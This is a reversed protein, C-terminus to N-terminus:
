DSLKHSTTGNHVEIMASAPQGTNLSRQVTNVVVVLGPLQQTSGGQQEDVSGGALEKAANFAVMKNDDQDRLEALRFLSRSRESLRLVDLQELYYAKIHPKRLAVYLSHESIKAVKAADARKTGKWIMEDLALKLRGTVKGPASREKASESRNAPPKDALSALAMTHFLGSSAPVRLAGLGNSVM